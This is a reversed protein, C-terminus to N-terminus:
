SQFPVASGLRCVSTAPKEDSASGAQAARIKCLTLRNNAFPCAPLTMQHRSTAPPLDAPKCIQSRETARIVHASLTEPCHGTYLVDVEARSAKDKKPLCCVGAPTKRNYEPHHFWVRRSFTMISTNPTGFRILLDDPLYNPLTNSPM